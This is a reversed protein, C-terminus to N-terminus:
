DEIRLCFWSAPPSVLKRLGDPIGVSPPQDKRQLRKVACSGSSNRLNVTSSAPNNSMGMSLNPSGKLLNLWVQCGVMPWAEGTNPLHAMQGRVIWDYSHSVFRQGRERTQWRRVRQLNGTVRVQGFTCPKVLSDKGTEFGVHQVARGLNQPVKDTQRHWAGPTEREAGKPSPLPHGRCKGALSNVCRSTLCPGSPISAACPFGIEVPRVRM